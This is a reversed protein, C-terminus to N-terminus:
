MATPSSIAKIQAGLVWGGLVMGLLLCGGLVAAPAFESASRETNL